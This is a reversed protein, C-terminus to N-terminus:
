SDPDSGRLSCRAASERDGLAVFAKAKLRWIGPYHADRRTIAHFCDLAKEAEGRALHWVGLAELGDLDDANAHLREEVSRIWDPDSLADVAEGQTSSGTHRSRFLLRM